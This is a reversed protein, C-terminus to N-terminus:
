VSETLQIGADLVLIERNKYLLGVAKKFAKKSMGFESYIAEPSSKDHFPLFGGAAQLKTRVISIDSEITQTYGPPRISIDIKNEESIRKVYGTFTDGINVKQFIENTFILGKHQNQVVVSYGLETQRYVLIQVDQGEQISLTENQLYREVRNSAFLRDTQSDLGLFCVYSRNEQMPPQQEKFPSFLDKELGWNLFAGISNVEIVRLLAFQNLELYPKRTTAVKRNEHDLYVFVQMPADEDYEEPCYKNPLLVEEGSEDCLYLGYDSDRSVHLLQTKGISIM